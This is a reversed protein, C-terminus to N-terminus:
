QAASTSSSSCETTQESNKIEDEVSKFHCLLRIERVVPTVVLDDLAELQPIDAEKFLPNGEGDCVSMAYLRLDSLRMGAPDLRGTKKNVNGSDVTAWEGATLSRIRVKKGGALTVIGFRRKTEGLLDERSAFGNGESM